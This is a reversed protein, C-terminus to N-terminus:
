NIPCVKVTIEKILDDKKNMRKKILEWRSTGNGDGDNSFYTYINQSKPNIHVNRGTNKWRKFDEVVLGTESNSIQFSCKEAPLGEIGRIVDLISQYNTVYFEFCENENSYIQHEYSPSDITPTRHTNQSKENENKCGINLRNENYVFSRRIKYEKTSNAQANLRANPNNKLNLLPRIGKILIREDNEILSKDAAYEIWFVKMFDKMFINISDETNQIILDNSLLSGLGARLTSLTGHCIESKNHKQEIHWILRNYITSNGQKGTGSTGLYVLEYQIENIEKAYRQDIVNIDIFKSLVKYGDTKMFWFYIGKSGINPIPETHPIFLNDNKLNEDLWITLENFDSNQNIVM